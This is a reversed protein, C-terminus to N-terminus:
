KESSSAKSRLGDEDLTEGPEIQSLKRLFEREKQKQRQRARKRERRRRYRENLRHHHKWKNYKTGHRAPHWNEASDEEAELGDEVEDDEVVPVAVTAANVRTGNSVDGDIVSKATTQDESSRSSETEDEVQRSTNGSSRSETSNDFASEEVSNSMGFNLAANQETANAAEVQDESQIVLPQKTTVVEVQDESQIVSPQKATVVVALEEELEPLMIREEVSGNLPPISTTPPALTPDGGIVTEATPIKVFSSAASSQNAPLAIDNAVAPGDAEEFIPLGNLLSCARTGRCDRLAELQLEYMGEEEQTLTHNVNRLQYPHLHASLLVDPPSAGAPIWMSGMHVGLPDLSQGRM